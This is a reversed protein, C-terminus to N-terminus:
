QVSNQLYIDLQKLLVHQSSGKVCQVAKAKKDFVLLYNKHSERELNGEAGSTDTLDKAM